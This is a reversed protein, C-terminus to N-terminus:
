IRTFNRIVAETEDVANERLVNLSELLVVEEQEVEEQDVEQQVLFQEVDDVPLFPHDIEM